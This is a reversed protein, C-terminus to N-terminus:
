QVVVVREAARTIATEAYRWIHGYASKLKGKCANVIASHSAKPNSERVWRAADAFSPFIEGTTVCLVSKSCVAASAALLPGLRAEKIGPESWYAKASESIKARVEKKANNRAAAARLRAKTEPRSSAERLAAARRERDVKWSRSLSARRRANVEPDRMKMIFAERAPGTMSVGDGGITKNVLPFGLRRYQDILEMEALFALEEDLDSAVVNVILGHKRVVNEWHRSRNHRCTARSGKGKGVYFPQGSDSKLHLYVYYINGM